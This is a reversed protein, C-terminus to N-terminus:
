RATVVGRGDSQIETRTGARKNGVGIHAGTKGDARGLDVSLITNGKRTKLAFSKKWNNKGDGRASKETVAVSRATGDRRLRQKVARETSATVERGETAKATGDRRLRERIHEARAGNVMTTDRSLVRGKRQHSGTSRTAGPEFRTDRVVRDTRTTLAVRQGDARQETTLTASKGLRGGSLRSLAGWNKRQTDVVAMGDARREISRQGKLKGAGPRSRDGDQFSRLSRVEGGQWLRAIEVNTNGSRGTTRTTQKKVEGGFYRHNASRETVRGAEVRDQRTVQPRSGFLGKRTFTATATTGRGDLNSTTTRSMRSRGLEVGTSMGGARQEGSLRLQKGLAGGTLRGRVGKSVDHQERVALGKGTREVSVSSKLRGRGAEAAGPLAVLLVAFLAVLGRVKMTTTM